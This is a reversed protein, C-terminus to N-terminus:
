ESDIGRPASFDDGLVLVRLDAFALFLDSPLSTRCLFRQPLERPADVVEMAYALAADGLHDVRVAVV